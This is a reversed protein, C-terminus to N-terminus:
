WEKIQKLLLKQSISLEKSNINKLELEEKEGWNDTIKLSLLNRLSVELDSEQEEKRGYLSEFIERVDTNTNFDNSDLIKYNNDGIAIINFNDASAIIDASHTTVIFKLNPFKDSLFSLIKQENKVSLFENIEDIVIVKDINKESVNDYFYLVELFIRIIAQYGNSLNGKEGNIYVNKREGIIKNKELNISLDIELFEKILKLLKDQYNYYLNEINGIGTRFIDFSDELNFKDEELRKNLINLYTDEFNNEKGVKEYDFSRNISDIFYYGEISEELIKKLIESKGSSNDGIIISNEYIFQNNIIKNSIDILMNQYNKMFM